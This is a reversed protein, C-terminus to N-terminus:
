SEVPASGVRARRPAHRGHILASGGRRLRRWLWWMKRRAVIGPRRMCSRPIELRAYQQRSDASELSQPITTSLLRSFCDSLMAALDAHGLQEALAILVPGEGRVYDRLWRGDGYYLPGLDHCKELTDALDVVLLQRDRSTLADLREKLAPLELPKKRLMTWFRYVHAEVDRSVANEVFRRRWATVCKGRGDGFDGNTYVNHLCAAAVIDGPLGLQAVVSATGALHAVVPVGDARFIGSYLSRALDCAHRVLALDEPSRNQRQLQNYLQISTQAITEM